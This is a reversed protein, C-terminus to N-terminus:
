KLKGNWGPNNLKTHRDEGAVSDQISWVRVHTDYSGSVLHTANSDLCTVTGTHGQLTGLHRSDSVQWLHVSNDAGASAVLNPAILKADFLKASQRAIKLPELPLDPNTLRITQDEACSLISGRVDFELSRIRKRHAKFESVLEGSAIDWVRINGCRGAAAIRAGDKSFAVAHNDNCACQLKQIQRTSETEYIRLTTEFGVSALLGGDPSFAVDIVAEPLTALQTPVDYRDTNWMMIRRDNGATVLHKGNPAYRAARVWDKHEGLNHIFRNEARDYISIYHDDGVIAVQQSGPRLTVGTVVPARHGKTKAETQITTSRWNLRRQIDNGCAFSPIGVLTGAAAVSALFERRQIM